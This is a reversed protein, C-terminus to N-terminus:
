VDTSRGNEVADRGVERAIQSLRYIGACSPSASVAFTSGVQVEGADIRWALDNLKEVLDAVEVADFDLELRWRNAASASMEDGMKM